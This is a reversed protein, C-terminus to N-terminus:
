IQKPQIDDLKNSNLLPMDSLTKLSIQITRPDTKKWFVKWSTIKMEELISIKITFIFYIWFMISITNRSEKIHLRWSKYGLDRIELYIEVLFM